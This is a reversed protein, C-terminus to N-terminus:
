QLLIIEMQVIHLLILIKIILIIIENLFNNIDNSKLKSFIKVCRSTLTECKHFTLLLLSYIIENPEELIKLLSNASESRSLM